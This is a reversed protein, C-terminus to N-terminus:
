NTKIKTKLYEFIPNLSLEKEKKGEPRGLHSILIIRSKRKILEQLFPLILLNRTHDLIKWKLLPVNLYVRLFIRKNTIELNKPFFKIGNM